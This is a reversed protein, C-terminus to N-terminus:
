IFKEFLVKALGEMGFIEKVAVRVYSEDLFDFNECNRIMIKHPILKEQLGYANIGQLKVLVFNASSPYIKEVYDSGQLIEILREKHEQNISRAQQAFAKDQLASQVYHSDFQSIKWLPEYKKLAQINDSSSLILGMRVGACSYFKTMSKLIYLKEYHALYPTVSPNDSFELFSEDIVITCRQKMWYKMLKELEYFTGDPTSPNVFVILSNPKVEQYLTEYRNVLHLAHHYLLAIRKYELYIPAYLYVEQKSLDRFLSSIASTAGNFLEIMSVDVGYHKAVAEYLAEYNPYPSINLQNFDLEIKPKLFNINSSLDIVEDPSCGLKHAFSVIDGGHEFPKM